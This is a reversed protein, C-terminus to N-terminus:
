KYGFYKKALYYRQKDDLTINNRRLYDAFVNANNEDKEYAYCWAVFDIYINEGNHERERHKGMAKAIRENHLEYILECFENIMRVEFHYIDM